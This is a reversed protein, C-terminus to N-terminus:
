FSPNGIIAIGIGAFIAAAIPSLLVSIFARVAGDNGRSLAVIGTVFSAFLLVPAIIWGLVPIIALLVGISCLTDTTKTMDKKLQNTLAIQAREYEHQQQEFSKSLNNM